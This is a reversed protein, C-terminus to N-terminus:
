YRNDGFSLTNQMSARESIRHLDFAYGFRQFFSFAIACFWDLVSYYSCLPTPGVVYVCLVSRHISPPISFTGSALGDLAAAPFHPKRDLLQDRGNPPSIHSRLKKQLQQSQLYDMAAGGAGAGEGEGAGTQRKVTRPAGGSKIQRWM